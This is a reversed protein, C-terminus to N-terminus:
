LIPIETLQQDFNKTKKESNVSNNIINTFNVVTLFNKNTAPCLKCEKEFLLKQMQQPLNM